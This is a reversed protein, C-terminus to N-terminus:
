STDGGTETECSQGDNPFGPPRLNGAAEVESAGALSTAPEDAREFWTLQLLEEPCRVRAVSGPFWSIYYFSFM